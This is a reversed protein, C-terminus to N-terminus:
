RASLLSASVSRSLGVITCHTVPTPDQLDLRCFNQPCAVTDSATVQPHVLLCAIPSLSPRQIWPRTYHGRKSNIYALAGARLARVAIDPRTKTADLSAEAEGYSLQDPPDADFTQLRPQLMMRRCKRSNDVSSEAVERGVGPCQDFDAM